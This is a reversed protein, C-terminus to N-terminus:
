EADKTLVLEMGAYDEDITLTDGDLTFPVGYMDEEDWDTGTYLTDEEVYYVSTYEQNYDDMDLSEVTLAVYEAVTMGSEDLFAADAEDRSMGMQNYSEYIIEASYYQVFAKYSTEEYETKEILEGKETFTMATYSTVSLDVGELGMEEATFTTECSWSGFLPECDASVFREDILPDGETANCTSCTKPAEKTADVWTHGLAEGETAGCNECTKAKECTAAMWSHGLPAGETEGCKECTKADTCNADKWEHECQCGTLALVCVLVLALIWFRRKM